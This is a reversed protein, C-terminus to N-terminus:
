DERTIIYGTAEVLYQGQPSRMWGLFKDINQSRGENLYAGSNKATVAYFDNAFPYAGSSIHEPTPPIGDISLFKVKNEGIMDRIYYLFSYGLSNKYNTYSAVNSYMGMMTSHIEEIPAPVIPTGDMIQKLMTQSGSDEPRQYARIAANIGGVDRWNAAKGSYIRKIEDTSLNAAANHKNVFFVFAERGIPTLFLALGKTEAAQRQKDSVGMLFVIDAYGNILNEFADATRSCAGLVTYETEDVQLDGYISYEPIFLSPEPEPYTARVFASYLPYLATAGDLRPLEGTLQLKSPESLQAVLTERHTLTVGDAYYYDGFPTYNNLNIEERSQPLSSKYVQPGIFVAALTIIAGIIFFSLMFRVKKTFPKWANLVLLFIGGYLVYPLWLSHERFFNPLLYGTSLFALILFAFFSTVCLIGKIIKNKILFAAIAPVIAIAALTYISAM